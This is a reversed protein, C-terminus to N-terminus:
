TSARRNNKRANQIIQRLEVDDIMCVFINQKSPDEKLKESHPTNGTQITKEATTTCTKYGSTQNEHTGMNQVTTTQETNKNNGGFKLKRATKLLKPSIKNSSQDSKIKNNCETRSEYAPQEPENVNEERSSHKNIQPTHRPHDSTPNKNQKMSMGSISELDSEDCTFAISELENQWAPDYTFESGIEHSPSIPSMNMHTKESIEIPKSVSTKPTSHNKGVHAQETQPTTESKKADANQAYETQTFPCLFAEMEEYTLGMNEDLSVAPTNVCSGQDTARSATEAAPPYGKSRQDTNSSATKATHCSTNQINLPQPIERTSTAAKQPKSAETYKRNRAAQPKNYTNAIKIQKNTSKDETQPRKGFKNLKWERTIAMGKKERDIANETKKIRPQFMQKEEATFLKKKANIKNKISNAENRLHIASEEWFEM